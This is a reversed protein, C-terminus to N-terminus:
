DDKLIDQNSLAWTELQHSFVKKFKELINKIIILEEEPKIKDDLGLNFNKLTNNEASALSYAMAELAQREWSSSGLNAMILHYFDHNKNVISFSGHDIDLGADWFRNGKVKSSYVIRKFVDSDHLDDESSNENAPAKVKSESVIKERRANAKVLDITGTDDDPDEESFSENRENFKSGEPSNEDNDTISKCKAFVEKHTSKPIELLRQLTNLFSEPLVFHQKSVDVHLAEDHATEVEIKVRLGLYDRGVIGDLSHGWSILRGNRYIFAGKRDRGVKYGKLRKRDETDLSSVSSMKDQPFTCAKIIIPPTNEPLEPLKVKENLVKIPRTGCYKDNVFSSISDGWHLIDIPEIVKLKNSYDLFINLGKKLYDFYIVGMQEELKNKTKTISDHHPVTNTIHVVTGSQYDDLLNPSLQESADSIEGKYVGFGDSKVKERDLTYAKSLVGNKKSYVIIKQGLSLGASKLGFGYKSLSNKGYTVPSGITLGKEIDRNSMGKGDDIITYSLVNNKNSLTKGDKKNLVIKINKARATVSNDCIDLLAPAPSYGIKSIADCVRDEEIELKIFESM